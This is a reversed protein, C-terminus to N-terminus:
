MLRSSLGSLSSCSAATLLMTPLGILVSPHLSPKFPLLNMAVGFGYQADHPFIAQQRFDTAPLLVPRHPLLKVAMFFQQVTIEGGLPGVRFPSGIYGVDM